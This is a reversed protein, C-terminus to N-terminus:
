PQVECSPIGGGTVEDYQDLLALCQDMDEDAPAGACDLKVCYVQCYGYAQASWDEEPTFVAACADPEEEQSVGVPIGVVALVAVLLLAIGLTSLPARKFLKIIRM